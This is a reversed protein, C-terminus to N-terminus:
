RALSCPRCKFLIGVSPARLQPVGQELGWSPFCSGWKLPKEVLEWFTEASGSRTTVVPYGQVRPIPCHVGFCPPHGRTLFVGKISDTQFGSGWLRGGKLSSDRLFPFALQWAAEAPGPLGHPQFTMLYPAWARLLMAIQGAKMAERKSAVALGEGGHRQCCESFREKGWLAGVESLAWCSELHPEAWPEAEPRILQQKIEGSQKWPLLNGWSSFSVQIVPRQTKHVHWQEPVAPSHTSSAAKPLGWPPPFWM